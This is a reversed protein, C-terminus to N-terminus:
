SGTNKKETHDVGYQSQRTEKSSCNNWNVFIAKLVLVESLAFDTSVQSNVIFPIFRHKLWNLDGQGGMDPLSCHRRPSFKVRKAPFFGSTHGPSM